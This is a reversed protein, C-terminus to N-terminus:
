VRDHHHAPVNYGDVVCDHRQVLVINDDGVYDYAAVDGVCVHM